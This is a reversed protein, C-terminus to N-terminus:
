LLHMATVNRAYVRLRPVAAYLTLPRADPSAAGDLQLRFDEYGSTSSQGTQNQNVLVALGFTHWGKTLQHHPSTGGAVRGHVLNFMRTLRQERQAIEAIDGASASNMHVTQPMKRESHDLMSRAGTGSAMFAKVKINPADLRDAFSTNGKGFIRWGTVFASASFMAVSVDYPLYFTLGAGVIAIYNSSGDELNTDAFYDNSLVQGISVADGAQLPRVHHPRIRFASAFNNSEIHGNAIEYIAKGSTVRYLNNAVGAPSLVAGTSPVYDPSFDPM